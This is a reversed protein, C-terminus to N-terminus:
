RMRRAVRMLILYGILDQETDEHIQIEDPNMQRTNQIRKLKDDIRVQIQEVASLQSFVGVPEMASNGYERNKQLLLEKVADCEAAILKQTETLKTM